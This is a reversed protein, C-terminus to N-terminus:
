PNIKPTIPTGLRSFNFITCLVANFFSCVLAAVGLSLGESPGWTLGEAEGSFSHCYYLGNCKQFKQDNFNGTVSLISLFGILQFVFAALSSSFALHQFVIDRDKVFYLIYSIFMLALPFFTLGEFAAVTSFTGSTKTYRTLGFSYVDWSTRNQNLPIDIEYWDKCFTGITLGLLALSVLFVTAIIIRDHTITM